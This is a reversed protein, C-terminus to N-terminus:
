LSGEPTTSPILGIEIGWGINGTQPNTWDLRLAFGRRVIWRPLEEPVPAAHVDQNFGASGFDYAKVDYMGAIDKEPHSDIYATLDAADDATLSGATEDRFHVRLFALTFRQWPRMPKPPFVESINGTGNAEFIVVSAPDIM